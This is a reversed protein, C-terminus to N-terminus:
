AEAAPLTFSFTSGEGPASTVWIRGGHQNVIRECIALGIGTGPYAEEGHLRKFPQFIREADSPQMGIGNDRVWLRWMAGQREAGIEVEPPRGPVTFKVANGILNQFVRCVGARDVRVVPLDRAGIRAGAAEIPGALAELARDVM